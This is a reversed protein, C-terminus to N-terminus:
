PFAENLAQQSGGVVLRDGVKVLPRRILRPEKLMLQMLAEDDLNDASLGLAKFSPSNWSFVESLKEGKFLQRLEDECLRNQFFDREEVDVGKEHLWARM